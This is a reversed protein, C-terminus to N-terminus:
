KLLRKFKKYVASDNRKDIVTIYLNQEDFTYVIRHEGVDKRYYVPDESGKMKISDHQEPEGQLSRISEYIQCFPKDPLKDLYKEVTKSLRLLRM